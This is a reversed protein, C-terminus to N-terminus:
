GMIARYKQLSRRLRPVESSGLELRSNDLVNDMWYKAVEMDGKVERLVV